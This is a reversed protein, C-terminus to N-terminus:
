PPPPNQSLAARFAEAVRAAEGEDVSVEGAQTARYLDFVAWAKADNPMAAYRPVLHAHFHPYSEGMAATYIRLAGSVEELVRAVHRLAPGFNAAEREDFHAIGPVHRQSNLMLWGPVGTGAALRRVCWLENEFLADGAVNARCVGCSEDFSAHKM